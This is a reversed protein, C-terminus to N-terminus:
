WPKGRYRKGQLRVRRRKQSETERDKLADLLREAQEATPSQDRAYIYDGILENEPDRAFTTSMHLPPVLAGTVPDPTHGAQALVTADALDDDLPREDSNRTMDRTM